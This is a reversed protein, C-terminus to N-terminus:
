LRYRVSYLRRRLPFYVNKKGTLWENLPFTRGLDLACWCEATTAWGDCPKVHRPNRSAKGAGCIYLTIVTKKHDEKFWDPGEKRLLANGGASSGWTEYWCGSQLWFWFDEKTDDDMKVEWYHLVIIFKSHVSTLTVHIRIHSILYFFFFFVNQDSKPFCKCNMSFLFDSNSLDPEMHNTTNVSNHFVVSWLVYSLPRFAAVSIVNNGMGINSIFM